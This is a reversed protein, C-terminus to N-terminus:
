RGERRCALLLFVIIGIVALLGPLLPISTSSRVAYAGRERLGLWGSGSANASRAVRRIDPLSAGPRHYEGVSIGGRGRMAPNGIQDTDDHCVAAGM